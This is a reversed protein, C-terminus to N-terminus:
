YLYVAGADTSVNNTQDGNIGRANSAERAFVALVTGDASLALRYGFNDGPDTNSAKLYAEQSWIVGARSYLYAAGSDTSTNDTAAGGIGTAASDENIAGVALRSGDASLSVSYGFADSAGTNSAKVFAEQSWVLATRAFVYAAGSGPAGLDLDSGGVGTASSRESFAGVALRTGDASLAVSCGFEDWPDTQSAKVYAEQAWTTLTRAYVYVAGGNVVSNDAQNGGVGTAGSAENYAGSALSAGDGSISVSIGFDDGAGTNSAKVYAEQTWSTGSRSFVYAAGSEAAGNDSQSGGIGTASSDEGYAGVVLHTGDGSLALSYGFFDGAGSNSAKVYAEQAWGMTSRAFIYVAGSDVADNNAQDGGVGTSSSDEGFAGVALQTGDASLSVSTGFYDISATNSAKIYAEQAWTTGTKTFVYVAGAYPASVDTQIGGVGTSASNERMSGIALRTGDASLSVSSGFWTYQASNSAKVYVSARTIVVTYTRTAGSDTRVVVEVVRPAIGVNVVQSAGSTVLLGAVTITAGSPVAVTPTLTTSTAGSPLTVRYTLTGAAFAPTLAAGPGVILNALAPNDYLCGGVGRGTGVYDTFCSCTFSGVTDACSTLGVTCLDTGAACEDVNVCVGASCARAAPLSPACNACLAGGAGCALNAGGARCVTGDWCGFCCTGARCLGNDSTGCLTGDGTCADAPGLDPAGLDPPGLDSVGLDAPGLDPPGLDPEGLDPSGLDAVGLDSEGLDAGGLDSEGLDAVGLDSEGLDAVGLDSEGLDDHGLDDHGLDARGLDAGLDTPSADLGLDAGAPPLGEYVSKDVVFCGSLGVALLSVHLWAYRPTRTM